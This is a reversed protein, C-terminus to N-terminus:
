IACKCAGFARCVAAAAARSSLPSSLVHQYPQNLFLIVFFHRSKNHSRQPLDVNPIIRLFVYLVIHPCQLGCVDFLARGPCVEINDTVSFPYHATSGDPRIPAPGIFAAQERYENQRFIVPPANSSFDDFRKFSVLIEKARFPYFYRRGNSRSRKIYLHSVAVFVTHM